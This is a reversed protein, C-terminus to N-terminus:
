RIHKELTKAKSKSMKIFQLLQWNEWNNLSTRIFRYLYLVDIKGVYTFYTCFLAQVLDVYMYQMYIYIKLIKFITQKTKSYLGNNLRRMFLQRQIFDVLPELICEGIESPIFCSPLYSFSKENLNATIEHSIVTCTM